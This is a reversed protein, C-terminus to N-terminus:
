IKNKIKELEQELYAVKKLLLEFYSVNMMGDEGQGVLEPNDVKLEQAIVGFRKKNPTSKYEFEKYDIDIKKVELPKINTKLRKDSGLVFNAATIDWSSGGANWDAVLSGLEIDNANVTIGGITAGAIVNLTPNVTSVGTQTMGAGATVSTVTGSGGGLDDDFLSLQIDNLAKRKQVGADLVVLEDTGVMNTAGMDTLESLDVAVTATGSGTIPNTGTVDILAGAGITVSTVTGANATWGADNSFISLPITNIQTKRSLTSDITMIDDTGVLTGSASLENFDLNFTLTNSNTTTYAIDVGSGGKFDIIETSTINGRSTTDTYLRWYSYNDFSHTHNGAAASTSSTGLSVGVTNDTVVLTGVSGASGAHSALGIDQVHDGTTTDTDGTLGPGATINVRTIDGSGAPNTAIWRATPVDWTLVQGDTPSSINTDSLGSLVTGGATAIWKGTADDWTLADGDAPTTITTDTAGSITSTGGGITQPIWKGTADDWALAQNDTPSGITTDSLGSLPTNHPNTAGSHAVLASEAAYIPHTHGTLSYLTDAQLTGDGKVFHNITGSDTVFAPGNINGTVTGGSLDLYKGNIGYNVTAGTLTNLTVVGSTTNFSGSTVYDNAGGGGGGGTTLTVQGGGDDVLTGNSVVIKSVTTASPSGDVETVIISGSTSDSTSGDAKLFQTSLGGAKVITTATMPGAVDLSTIVNPKDHIM